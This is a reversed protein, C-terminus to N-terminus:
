SVSGYYYNGEVREYSIGYGGHIVTSQQGTVDYAFGIRPAETNWYTNVLGLPLDHFLANAAPDNVVSVRGTEQAPFGSGPLVLGNYPYPNNTIIGARNLTAAHTPDYYAPDFSSGNNLASFIPQM